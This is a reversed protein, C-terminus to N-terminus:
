RRVRRAAEREIANTADDGNQVLVNLCCAVAFESGTRAWRTLNESSRVPPHLNDRYGVCQLREEGVVANPAPLREEIEGGISKEDCPSEPSSGTLSCAQTYM